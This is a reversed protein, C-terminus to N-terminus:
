GVRINRLWGFTEELKELIIQLLSKRKQPTLVSYDTSHGVNGTTDTAIIRFHYNSSPKLKDVILTHNLGFSLDASSQLKYIQDTAIGINYEIQSSSLEDTNWSVILQLRDNNSATSVETRIESIVPPSADVPTAFTLVNTQTTNGSSDRGIIRFNYATKGILGTIVLRHSTVFDLSGQNIGESELKDSPWFKVFSDTAINTQWSIEATNGTVTGVSYNLIQPLSLTTFIYDDSAITQNDTDLGIIQFHYTTGNSLNSLRVTHNTTSSASEDVVRLGYSTDTGYVISSESISSTKWTIIASILTIDTIQIESIKQEGTTTLTQDDSRGFNGLADASKVQFHYPTNPLLGFLKVTHSKVQEETQAIESTYKTTTGYAVVSSAPVDTTWQVIASSGIVSSVIINSIVPPAFDTPLASSTFNIIDIEYNPSILSEAKVTLVPLGMTLILILIWMFRM